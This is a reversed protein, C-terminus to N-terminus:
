DWRKCLLVVGVIIFPISLYQGMLLTTDASLLISQKEKFFEIGFRFAFLVVFFLGSVVGKRLRSEQRQWVFYLIYFFVFYFGAEYLQVPHRPEPMSGDMPRGFVVGWPLSTPVGLIEQNFFNGLRIFFGALTVPLVVMDLLSIWSFTPYQRRMYWWFLVLAILIGIAAGHSSLGGDWTKIVDLPHNKYYEWQWDYFLVHGLRAGVITAIIVFWLLKDTVQTAYRKLTVVAGAEEFEARISLDTNLAALVDKKLMGDLEEGPKWMMINKRSRYNLVHFVKHDKLVAVLREWSIVQKLAIPPLNNPLTSLFVKRFIFYGLGVAMAFFIGYWVVPRNIIPITFLENPPNWFIAPLIM